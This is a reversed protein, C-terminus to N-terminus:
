CEPPAGAPDLDRLGSSGLARVRHEGAWDGLPRGSLISRPQLRLPGHPTGPSVREAPVRRFIGSTSAAGESPVLVSQSVDIVGVSGVDTAAGPVPSRFVAVLSLGVSLIIAALWIWRTPIPVGSLSRTVLWAGAGVLLAVAISYTMLGLITM